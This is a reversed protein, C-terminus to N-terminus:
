TKIELSSGDNGTQPEALDRYLFTIIQAHNCTLTPSFTLDSTGNTIGAEVAWSIAQADASNPNVDTFNKSLLPIPCGAEKWLYTVAMSRSCPEHPQFYDQGVIKSEYAWLAAKYYYNDESIDKFPNSISPEPSKCARWIFTLVQANTCTKNPSFTTPSTGNTVGQDIAWKVPETYWIDSPVDTFSQAKSSSAAFAPLVTLLLISITLTAITIQRKMM